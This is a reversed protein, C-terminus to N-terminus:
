DQICRVSLGIPKEEAGLFFGGSGSYLSRAWAEGENSETSSWWYTSRGKNVFAGRYNWIGAPLASFHSQNNSFTHNPSIWSLTDTTKLQYGASKEGGLFEALISWEKKTPVHWGQPCIDNSSSVAYWNYLLGFTKNNKESGNCSSWAGYIMEDVRLDPALFPIEKGNQYHSTRLNESMWVQTGIVVTGYKNKNFDYIWSEAENLKIDSRKTTAGFSLKLSSYDVTVSGFRELVSQGLLLPANLSHVISAEVNHLEYGGIELVRINLKTGEAIDGNAIQYREEGLLDENSMYGNKIMFAAESLSISVDSAGTDFIFKLKLGNITCPVYYVGNKKEMQVQTQGFTSIVSAILIYLTVFSTKM